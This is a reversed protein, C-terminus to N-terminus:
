KKDGESSFAEGFAAQIRAAREPDIAEDEARIQAAKQVATEHDVYDTDALHQYIDRASEKAAATTDEAVIIKDLTEVAMATSGIQTLEMMLSGMEPDNEVLKAADVILECRMSDDDIEGLSTKWTEFAEAALEPDPDALMSTVDSMGRSGFWSFAGLAAAREARDDSLRMRRALSLSADRDGLDLIRDLADVRSIRGAALKEGKAVEQMLRLIEDVKAKREKLWTADAASDDDFFRRKTKEGGTKSESRRAKRAASKEGKAEAIKRSSKLVEGGKSNEGSDSCGALCLGATVAGATAFTLLFRKLRNM